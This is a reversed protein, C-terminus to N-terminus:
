LSARLRTYNLPLVAAEWAALTPEIGMVREMGMAAIAASVRRMLPQQRLGSRVSREFGPAAYADAGRSAAKLAPAIHPMRQRHQESGEAAAHVQPDLTRAPAHGTQQQQDRHHRRPQRGPPDVGMDAALMGVIVVPLQGLVARDVSVRASMVRDVRVSKIPVGKIAGGDIRIREIRVGEAPVADIRVMDIRVVDGVMDILGAGIRVSDVLTVDVLAADVLVGEVLVLEGLVVEVFGMEGSVVGVWEIAVRRGRRIRGHDLHQM